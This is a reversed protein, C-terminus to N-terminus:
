VIASTEQEGTIVFDHWLTLLPDCDEPLVFDQEFTEGEAVAKRLATVLAPINKEEVAVKKPPEEEQTDQTGQEEQTKPEEQTPPEVVPAQTDGSSSLETEADDPLDYKGACSTASLITLALMVLCLMMCFRRKM